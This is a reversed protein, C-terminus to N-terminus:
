WVIALEFAIALIGVNLVASYKRLWFAVRRCPCAESDPPSCWGKMEPPYYEYLGAKEGLDVILRAFKYYNRSHIVLHLCAITALLGVAIGLICREWAGLKEGYIFVVTAGITFLLVFRNQLDFIVQRRSRQENYQEALALRLIESPNGNHGEETTAM